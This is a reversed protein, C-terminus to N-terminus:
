MANNLENFDVFGGVMPKKAEPVSVPTEATSIVPAPSPATNANPSVQITTPAIREAVPVTNTVPKIDVIQESEQINLNIEIDETFGKPVNITIKM